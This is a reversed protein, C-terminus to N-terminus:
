ELAGKGQKDVKLICGASLLTLPTYLIVREKILTSAQSTIYLYPYPLSVKNHIM